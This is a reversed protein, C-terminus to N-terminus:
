SCAPMDKPLNREFPIDLYPKQGPVIRSVAWVPLFLYRAAQWHGSGLM